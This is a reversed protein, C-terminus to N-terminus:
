TSPTSRPASAPNRAPGTELVVELVNPAAARVEVITPPVAAARKCSVLLSLVILVVRQVRIM